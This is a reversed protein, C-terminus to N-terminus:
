SCDTLCGAGAVHTDFAKQGLVLRRFRFPSLVTLRCGLRQGLSSVRCQSQYVIVCRCAGAAKVTANRPAGILLAEVADSSSAGLSVCILGSEIVYCM